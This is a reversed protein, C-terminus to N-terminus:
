GQLEQSSEGNRTQDRLLRLLDERSFRVESSGVENRNLQDIMQSLAERALRNAMQMARAEAIEVARAEAMEVARAEAIEVARAEAMEVAREDVTEMVRAELTELARAFAREEAERVRRDEREQAKRRIVDALTVVVEKCYLVTWASLGAAVYGTVIDTAIRYLLPDEPAPGPSGNLRETTNIIAIATGGVITLTQFWPRDAPKIGWLTERTDETRQEQTM